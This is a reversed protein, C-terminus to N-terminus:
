QGAGGVRPQGSAPPRWRTPTRVTPVTARRDGHRVSVSHLVGVGMALLMGWVLNRLLAFVDDRLYFLMPAFALVLFVIFSLRRRQVALTETAGLLLGLIAFQLAVGVTGFSAYAEGIASGGLGINLAADAPSMWQTIFTTSRTFGSSAIGRSSSLITPLVHAIAATYPAAGLSYGYESSYDVFGIYPLYASTIAAYGTTASIPSDVSPGNRVAGFYSLLLLLPLAGVVCWLALVRLRFRRVFANHVYVFGLAALLSSNRDGISLSVLAYQGLLGIVLLRHRRALRSRSDIGVYILLLGAPLYNVGLTGFAPQVSLSEDLYQRYRHGLLLEIGGLQVILYLYLAASLVAIAIGVWLLLHSGSWPSQVAPAPRNWHRSAPRLLVLAALVGVETALIALAGVQLATSTGPDDLSPMYSLPAIFHFEVEFFYSINTLFALVIFINPWCLAGPPLLRANATLLVILLVSFAVPSEWLEKPLVAILILGVLCACIASALVLRDRGPPANSPRSEPLSSGDRTTVMLPRVSPM